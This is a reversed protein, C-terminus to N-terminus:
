RTYIGADIQRICEQCTHIIKEYDEKRAEMETQAGVVKTRAIRKVIDADWPNLHWALWIDWPQYGKPFTSYNSAGVNHDRITEKM